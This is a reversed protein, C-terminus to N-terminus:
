SNISKSIERMTPFLLLNAAIYIYYKKGSTLFRATSSHSVYLNLFTAVARGNRSSLATLEVM